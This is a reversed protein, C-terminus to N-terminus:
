HAGIQSVSITWYNHVDSSSADQLEARLMAASDDALPQSLHRPQLANLVASRCISQPPARLAVRASACTQFLDTM